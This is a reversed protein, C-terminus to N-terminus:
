GWWLLWYDADSDCTEKRASVKMGAWNNVKGVQIWRNTLGNAYHETSANRHSPVRCMLVRLKKMNMNGIRPLQSSPAQCNKKVLM